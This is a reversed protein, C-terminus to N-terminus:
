ASMTPGDFSVSPMSISPSSQEAKESLSKFGADSAEREREKAAMEDIGSTTAQRVKDLMASMPNPVGTAMQAATHAVSASVVSKAGATVASIPSAGDNDDAQPAHREFVDGKRALKDRQDRVGAYIRADAESMPKDGSAMQAAQKDLTEYRQQNLSKVPPKYASPSAQGYPNLNTSPSPATPSAFPNLTQKTHDPADTDTSKNTDDAQAPSDAKIKENGERAIKDFEALGEPQTRLGDKYPGYPSSQAFLPTNLANKDTSKDANKAVEDPTPMTSMDPMRSRMQEAMQAGSSSQNDNHIEEASKGGTGWLSPDPIGSYRKPIDVKPTNNKLTTDVKPLGTDAHIDLLPNGTPANALDRLNPAPAPNRTIDDNEPLVPTQEIPDFGSSPTDSDPTTNDPLASKPSPAPPAPVPPMPTPTPATTDTVDPAADDPTTADPTVEDTNPETPKPESEDLNNEVETRTHQDTNSDLNLSGNEFSENLKAVQDADMSDIAKNYENAVRARLQNKAQELPDLGNKVTLDDTGNGTDPLQTDGRSAEFEQARTPDVGTVSLTEGPYILNADGSSYGSINDMPVGLRQSLDWVTDGPQITVNMDQTANNRELSAM